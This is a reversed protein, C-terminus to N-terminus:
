LARYLPPYVPLGRPPAPEGRGRPREAGHATERRAFPTHHTKKEEERKSAAHEAKYPIVSKKEEAYLAGRALVRTDTPRSYCCDSQEVGGM